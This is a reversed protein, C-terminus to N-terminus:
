SGDPPLSHVFAHVHERREPATYEFNVQRDTVEFFSREAALLDHEAASIVAESVDSLNERVLAAQDALQKELFFGGLILKAKVVLPLPTGKQDHAVALTARLLAEAAPSEVEYARRVIFGLDFTALQAVFELGSARALESYYRFHHAIERLLEPHERLDRALLRYEYFIDYISHVDKKKIAERLFNNFYRVSLELAKHDGRESAHVAIVRNADSISTVVDPAKSLAHQYSLFMQTLAKMEFWTKDENLLDLAEQSLGIFDARDVEFWRAPMKAKIAGHHDLILKITWLGELAVGRDARDLSKLVITGIQFLRESVLSQGENPETKGALVDDLIGTTDDKLRRLINSPDLFRVVYFFYPIILAWGLLAGVVAFRFAWMPAFQPGILYDVFLVNAAGFAMLLLMAQNLRDRLFMDILKPTHMNATLPIALGITAILMALANNYGRAMPSLIDVLKANNVGAWSTASLGPAGASWWELAAEGGFIVVYVGCLALATRSFTTRM